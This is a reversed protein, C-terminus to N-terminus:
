YEDWHELDIPEFEEALSLSEEKRNKYGEELLKQMQEKQIDDIRQRLVAAIFNNKGRPGALKNM